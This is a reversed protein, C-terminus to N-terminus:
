GKELTQDSGVTRSCRHSNSCLHVLLHLDFGKGEPEVGEERRCNYGLSFQQCWRLWGDTDCEVISTYLALHQACCLKQGYDFYKGRLQVEVTQSKELKFKSSDGVESDAHRLRNVEEEDDKAECFIQFSRSNDKLSQEAMKLSGWCVLVLRFSLSSAPM